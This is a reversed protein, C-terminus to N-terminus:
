SRGCVCSFSKTYALGAGFRLPFGHAYPRTDFTFPSLDYVISVGVPSICLFRTCKRRAAGGGYSKRVLAPPLGALVSETAVPLLVDGTGVRFEKHGGCAIGGVGIRCGFGCASIATLETGANGFVGLEMTLFMFGRVGEAERGIIM